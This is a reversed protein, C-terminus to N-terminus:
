PKMQFGYVHRVGSPRGWWPPHACNPRRCELRRQVDPRFDPLDRDIESRVTERPMRFNSRGRGRVCSGTPRCGNVEAFMAGNQPISFWLSLRVISFPVAGHM